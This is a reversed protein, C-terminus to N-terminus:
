QGMKAVSYNKQETEAEPTNWGLICHSLIALELGQELISGLVLATARDATQLTPAGMGYQLIVQWSDNGYSRADLRAKARAIAESRAKKSLTSPGKGM